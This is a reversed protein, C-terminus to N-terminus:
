HFYNKYNTDYNMVFDNNWRLDRLNQQRKRNPKEDISDRSGLCSLLANYVCNFYLNMM